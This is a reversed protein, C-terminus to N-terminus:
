TGSVWARVKGWAKRATGLLWVTLATAAVLLVAVVIVAVVPNAIALTILLAVGVDEALSLGINSFPEPSTNAVVRTTAKAAHSDLALAGSVVAAVAAGVNTFEGGLVAGLAAAGLPRVVTHIADWVNDLYPVKDVVFEIAFLIGSLIMVDTRTLVDPIDAWGARGAVGLLLTVLYLNLGSAWGSGAILSVTEIM